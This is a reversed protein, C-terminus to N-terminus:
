RFLSLIKEQTLPKNILKLGLSNVKNLDDQNSSTSLMVVKVKDKNEFSIENYRELFEFGNMVPMNIDLFILSPTKESPCQMIYKLGEEGNLATQIDDSISLTRLLNVNIFNNIADDDILLVKKKM